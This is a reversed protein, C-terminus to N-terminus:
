GLGWDGATGYIIHTYIDVIVRTKNCQLSGVWALDLLAKDGGMQRNQVPGPKNGHRLPEPMIYILPM